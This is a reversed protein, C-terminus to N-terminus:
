KKYLINRDEEHFYEKKPLNLWFSQEENSLGGDEESRMALDRPIKSSFYNVIQTPRDIRHEYGIRPITYMKLDEYIMRLFFEYSYGIKMSEKVPKYFGDVQQSKNVLSQTKFVSGTINSCNFRLLLQLDFYGAVESYGDVWCAENFYGLFVGNSMERTLPLFVDTDEKGEAFKMAKDYWKVDVTDDHEVVSFWKYNNKVAYNLSENFVKQFTDSETDQIIYNLDKKASHEEKFPEGKDNKKTLIIKPGDAIKQLVEKDENSLNHTLILLDIPYSQETLSYLSENLTFDEIKNIPLVILLNNNNSSNFNQLEKM